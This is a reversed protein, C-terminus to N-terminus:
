LEACDKFGNRKAIAIRRLQIHSIREEVKATALPDNDSAYKGMILTQRAIPEIAAVIANWDRTMSRPATLGRLEAFAARYYGAVVPATSGVGALSTNTVSAAQKNLRACISDAAAILQARTLRSHNARAPSPSTGAVARDATATKASTSQASQTSQTKSAAGGCGTAALVSASLASAVLGTRSM